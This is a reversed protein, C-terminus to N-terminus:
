LMGCGSIPCRFLLWARRAEGGGSSGSPGDSSSAAAGGGGGGGTLNDLIQQVPGLLAQNATNSLTQSVSSVQDLVVGLVGSGLGNIAPLDPLVITIGPLNILLLDEDGFRRRLEPSLRSVDLHLINPLHLDPLQVSIDGGKNGSIIPLDLKPIIFNPLIFRGRRGDDAGQAAAPDYGLTWLLLAVALASCRALVATIM